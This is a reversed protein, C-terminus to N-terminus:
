SNGFGIRTVPSTRGEHYLRSQRFSFWWELVGAWPMDFWTLEERSRFTDVKVVRPQRKQMSFGLWLRQSRDVDLPCGLSDRRIQGVCSERGNSASFLLGIIALMGDQNSTCPTVTIVDDLSASTFFYDEM